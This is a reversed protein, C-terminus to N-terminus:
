LLIRKNYQTVASMARQASHRLSLVPLVALRVDRDSMIPDAAGSLPTFSIKM